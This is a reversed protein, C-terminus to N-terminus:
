KGEEVKIKINMWYGKVRSFNKKCKPNNKRLYSRVWVRRYNRHNEEKM